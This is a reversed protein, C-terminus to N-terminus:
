RRKRRKRGAAPIRIRQGTFIRDPNRIKRRNARHIRPYLKGRGYYHRSYGWLTTGKVIRVGAPTKRSRPYLKRKRKTKYRAKNKRRLYQSSVASRHASRKVSATRRRKVYHTKRSKRKRVKSRVTLVRVKPKDGQRVEQKAPKSRDVSIGRSVEKSAQMVPHKDRDSIDDRTPNSAKQSVGQKALSPLLGRKKGLSTGIGADATVPPKVGPKSKNPKPEVKEKQALKTPAVHDYQMRAESTIRGSKLVHGARFLHTGPKIKGRNIFSWVGKNDAVVEGIEQDDKFLRIRSGPKAHGTLEMAGEAINENYSLSKFGFSQLRSPKESHKRDKRIKKSAGAGKDQVEKVAPKADVSKKGPDVKFVGAFKDWLDKKGAAKDVPDAMAIDVIKGQDMSRVAVSPKEKDAKKDGATVARIMELASKPQDKPAAKAVTKAKEEVPAHAVDFGSEAKVVLKGKADLQEVVLWHAGGALKQKIKFSWAGAKDAVAEGIDNGDMLLRLKAGAQAMGKISIDGVNSEVPIYKKDGITLERWEPTSVKKGTPASVTKSISRKAGMSNEAVVVPNKSDSTAMVPDMSKSESKVPTEDAKKESQKKPTKALAKKVDTGSGVPKVELKESPPASVIKSPKDAVVESKPKESTLLSVAGKDVKKVQASKDAVADPSNSALKTIEKHSKQSAEKVKVGEKVASESVSKVAEVPNPEVIKTENGANRMRDVLAGGIGFLILAVIIAAGTNKRKDSSNM